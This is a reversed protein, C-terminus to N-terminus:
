LYLNTAPALKLASKQKVTELYDKKLRNMIVLFDFISSNLTTASGHFRLSFGAFSFPLGKRELPLREPVYILKYTTL